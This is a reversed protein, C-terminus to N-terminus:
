QMQSNKVEKSVSYSKRKPRLTTSPFLSMKRVFTHLASLSSQRCQSCYYPQQSLKNMDEDPILLKAPKLFAVNIVVAIVLQLIKICSYQYHFFYLYSASNWFLM